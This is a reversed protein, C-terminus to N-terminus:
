SFSICLALMRFKLDENGFMGLGNKCASYFRKSTPLDVWDVVNSIFGEKNSHILPWFPASKWFPIVMIGSASQQEMQKLVRTILCIPPNFFGFVKGWNETFADAGSVGTM